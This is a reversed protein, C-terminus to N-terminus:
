FYVPCFDYEIGAGCSSHVVYHRHPNTNEIYIRYCESCMQSCYSGYEITTCTSGTNPDYHSGHSMVFIIDQCVVVKNGYGCASAPLTITFVLLLTFAFCFLTKKM